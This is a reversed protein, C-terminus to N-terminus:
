IDGGETIESPSRKDSVLYNAASFGCVVLYSSPFHVMIATTQHARKPFNARITDLLWMRMGKWKFIGEVVVNRQMTALEEEVDSAVKTLDALFPQATCGPLAM